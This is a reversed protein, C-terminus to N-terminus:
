ASDPPAEPADTPPPPPTDPVEPTDDDGGKADNDTPAAYYKEQEKRKALREAEEFAMRQQTEVGRQRARELLTKLEEEREAAVEAESRLVLEKEEETPAELAATDAVVDPVVGRLIYQVEDRREYGCLRMEKM